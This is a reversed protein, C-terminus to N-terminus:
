DRAPASPVSAEFADALVLASHNKDGKTKQLPPRSSPRRGICVRLYVTLQITEAGDPLVGTTKAYLPHRPPNDDGSKKKSGSDILTTICLCWYSFTPFSQIPLVSQTDLYPNKNKEKEIRNIKM